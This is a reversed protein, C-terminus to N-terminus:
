RCNNRYQMSRLDGQALKDALQPYRARLHNRAAELDRRYQPLVGAGRRAVFVDALYLVKGAQPTFVLIQCTPVFAQGFISSDGAMLHVTGIGLPKGPEAKVVIYGQDQAYTPMPLMRVLVDHFANDRIEGDTIGVRANPPALGIVFYADRDSQVSATAAPPPTVCAAAVIAVLGVVLGAFTRITFMGAEGSLQAIM